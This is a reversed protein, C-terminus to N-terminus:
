FRDFGDLSYFTRLTRTVSELIGTYVPPLIEHNTKYQFFLINLYNFQCSNENNLTKRCNSESLSVFSGHSTCGQLTGAM